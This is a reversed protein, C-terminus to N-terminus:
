SLGAKRRWAALKQWVVFVLGSFMLLRLASPEPVTIANDDLTVAGGMALARGSLSAGTDMTISAVALISGDFSTDTGITASSGVLWFINDAQAGNKLLIQASDASM